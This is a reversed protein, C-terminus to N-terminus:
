WRALLLPPGQWDADGDGKIVLWCDVPVGLAILEALLEGPTEASVMGVLPDAARAVDAMLYRHRGPPVACKKTVYKTAYRLAARTSGWDKADIRVWRAGGSPAWGRRGLHLRWCERVADVQIRQRVLVHWHWGHGSPHLEPVAVYHRLGLRAAHKGLFERVHRMSESFDQCGAGPWTLTLMYRLGSSRVARRVQGKARAGARARNLENLQDSPVPVAESSADVEATLVELNRSSLGPRTPRGSGVYAPVAQVEAGDAFTWWSVRYSPASSM